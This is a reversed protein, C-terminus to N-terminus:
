INQRFMKKREIRGKLKTKKTVTTATTAIKFLCVYIVKKIQVSVVMFVM